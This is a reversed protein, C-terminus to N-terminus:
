SPTWLQNYRHKRFDGKVRRERDLSLFLIGLSPFEEREYLRGAPLPRLPAPIQDEIDM